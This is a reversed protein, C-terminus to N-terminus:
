GRRGRGGRSGRPGGGRKRQKKAGGPSARRGGRGKRKKKPKKPRPPIYYLEEGPRVQKLLERNEPKVVILPNDVPGIVDLITGYKTRLERDYVPLGLQPLNKPDEPKVVIYGNRTAHLVEGLKRAM